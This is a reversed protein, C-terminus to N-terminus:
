WPWVLLFGEPEINRIAGGVTIVGRYGTPVSRLPWLWMLAILCALAVAADRLVAATNLEHRETRYRSVPAGKKTSRARTTAVPAPEALTM